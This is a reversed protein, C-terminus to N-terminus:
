AKISLEIFEMLFMRNRQFTGKFVRNRLSFGVKRILFFLFEGERISKISFFRAKESMLEFIVPFENLSCIFYQSIM